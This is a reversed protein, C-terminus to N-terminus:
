QRVLKLPRGNDFAGELTRDDVRKLTAKRDRCGPVASAADVQLSLTSNADGTVSLPLPRGVCVDKRDRVSRGYTTWTGAGGKLEVIGERAENGETEFAVRWSGDLPSQSSAGGAALCAAAVFLLRHLHRM